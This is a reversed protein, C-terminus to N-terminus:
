KAGQEKVTTKTGYAICNKALSKTLSAGVGVIAREGITINNIISAGTAVHVGQEIRVQGSMTVGPAIHCHMGISCDHDITTSTNIISNEGIAVGICVVANQMIQVGEALQANASVNASNAIVQAFQYGDDKFRQYIKQRLSKYPMAGIANVLEVEHKDYKLVDDDGTHHTFEALRKLSPSLEPAVVALIQRNQQLLIEALGAAHGGGGILVVPSKNM